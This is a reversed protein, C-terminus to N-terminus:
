AGLGPGRGARHRLERRHHPQCQCRPLHLEDGRRRVGRGRARRRDRLWPGAHDHLVPERRHQPDGRGLSQDLRQHPDPHQRQGDVPRVAHDGCQRHVLCGKRVGHRRRRGLTYGPKRLDGPNTHLTLTVGHTKVQLPATGSTAGNANYTVLYTNPTWKAYLTRAQNLTYLAGPDYNVGTGGANVNWGAFTHGARILGGSNAALTLAVGHIKAQPAPATGDTANNALYNVVYTIATWKAHLTVAADTTYSAGEAYDTGSGDAATNWGSFTHGTRALTGSNAALTLAEGQIKAQAEPVTGGTAGNANYTIAHTSLTHGSGTVSASSGASNVATVRFFYTTDPALGTKTYALVDAGVTGTIFWAASDYSMEIVFGEKPTATDPWDLALANPATATIGLSAPAGPIDVGPRQISINDYRALQLESGFGAHAIGWYATEAMAVTRTGFVTWTSGDTSGEATFDNGARTLRVWLPVKMNNDSQVISMTAGATSRVRFSLGLNDQGEALMAVTASNSALANRIMVGMRSSNAAPERSIVRATITGDGTIAQYVFSCADGTSEIRGGAVLTGLVGEASVPKGITTAVNNVSFDTALWPRALVATSDELVTLCTSPTSLMAGGTPNELVTRFGRSLKPFGDDILTVRVTSNAQGHAWSATGGTPTYHVGAAATSSSNGFGAGVVGTSGFTRSVPIAAVGHTKDARFVTQSFQIRGAEGFAHVPESWASHGAAGLARVRYWWTKGGPLPGPDAFGTTNAPLSASVTAWDGGPSERRQVEFGTEDSSNDQWSLQLPSVQATDLMLGGPPFPAGGGATVTAFAGQSLNHYRGGPSSERKMARVRYTYTQGAVAETDTFSLIDSATRALHTFPGLETPSRHVHYGLVNSDPSADWALSVAGESAQARLNSPPLVVHLRLSPDGLLAMHIGAAYSVSSSGFHNETTNNMSFRASHGITGGLGMHHLLWHPRASWFSALGLSEPTGALPARLFNNPTDWDGFYSGFLGNFVALSPQSGFDDSTGVNQMSEPGGGGVANAFLHDRSSVANGTGFWAGHATSSIGFCSFGAATGGAAYGGWATGMNNVIAARRAVTRGDGWIRGHRYAHARRLYRALLEAETVASTPFKTMHSLDVRGVALELGNGPFTDQDFKGDGPVNRQRNNIPSGNSQLTHNVTSDTWTGDMDGYYGDAPWAGVHDSHGDPAIQGSYPVPVRGLLYVARVNAPDANYEAVILSKVQAVEAARAAYDSANTSAPDIAMRPVDHRVVQWGDGTLNQQLQAIEAALVPTMTEDVILILKGRADTMPVDMGAALYGTRTATGNNYFRQVKYDYPVAFEATGDAFGNANAPLADALTTWATEGPLRRFVSHNVVTALTAAGEQPWSLTIVPPTHSTAATLALLYEAGTVTQAGAPMAGLWICVAMLAVSYFMNKFRKM